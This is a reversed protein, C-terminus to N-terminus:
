SGQSCVTSLASRSALAQAALPAASTATSGIQEVRDPGITRPRREAGDQQVVDGERALLRDGLERADAGLDALELGVRQHDRIGM